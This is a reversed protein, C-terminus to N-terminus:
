SIPSLWLISRLNATNGTFWTEYYIRFHRCAFRLPPPLFMLGGVKEDTPDASRNGNPSSKKVVTGDGDGSGDDGTHAFGGNARSEGEDTHSHMGGDSHSHGSDSHSHGGGAHSHGHSGFLLM